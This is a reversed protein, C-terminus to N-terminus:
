SKQYLHAVAKLRALFAKNHPPTKRHMPYPNDLLHQVDSDKKIQAPLFHQCFAYAAAVVNQTDYGIAQLMAAVNVASKDVSTTSSPYLGVGKQALLKWPFAKGPDPKRTPAIDCHGVVNKPAIQYKQIITQCLGILSKIQKKSYATQGLSKHQLEIGISHKNISEVGRWRSKGAHYAVKDEPVLKTIEGKEDVLYHASLQRDELGKIMEAVPLAFCHLVLFRVPYQRNEFFPLLHQKVKNM